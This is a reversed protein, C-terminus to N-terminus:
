ILAKNIIALVWLCGLHRWSYIIFQPVTISHYVVWCNLFFCVIAVNCCFSLGWHQTSFTLGLINPLTYLNHNKSFRICFCMVPQWSQLLFYLCLSIPWAILSTDQASRTIIFYALKVILICYWYQPGSM